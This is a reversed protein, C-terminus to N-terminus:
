RDIYASLRRAGAAVSFERQARELGRQGLREAAGPVCARVLADAVAAPDPRGFFVGADGLVFRPGPAPGAVVPVGAAMAELAAMNFAEAETSTILVVDFARLYRSAHAVFGGFRVPLGEASQQLVAALEGEGLFTLQANPQGAAFARFGELALQPQKKPHLRGVVGVHLHEGALGLQARAADRDLRLDDERELDIGNPLLTPVAVTAALEEVVAGSVGAFDAGSPLLRQRLRRRARRFLGFEHAVCLTRRAPVGSAMFGRMGRYRHCLALAFPEGQGGDLARRLTAGLARTARLDAQQLYTADPVLESTPPAFFVTGVDFGLRELARAHYAVVDAIPPHDNPCVQLERPPSDTM